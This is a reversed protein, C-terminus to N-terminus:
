SLAVMVQCFLVSAIGYSLAFDVSCILVGFLFHVYQAHSWGTVNCQTRADSFCWDFIAIDSDNIISNTINNNNTDSYSVFVQMMSLIPLYDLIKIYLHYKCNNNLIEQENHTWTHFCHVIIISIVMATQLLFQINIHIYTHAWTIEIICSLMLPIM